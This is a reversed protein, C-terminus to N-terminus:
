KYVKMYEKASIKWSNDVSMNHKAFKIYKKQNAYLSIAKTIAHMYWFMNHEDFTIGIGQNKSHHHTDTFDVVTDRLGGTRAVIPLGGYRMMIMQNLGCPEFLSPMLLFDASAYFRRALPEDYGLTISINPYKDILKSFVGNYYKEGSGLIAVNIEFDKLLHLSQLILDVGKQSTFRGIFVFLPRNPESLNLEKCLKTKNQSKLEFTQKDYNKYIFEDTSPSFVDYSIGNIIGNLKYNNTILMNDLTHGFHNTQIENAYTPSVTTIVDSYFIGAKLFNVQDFYEFRDSKFCEKWDLELENMVSKHFIGQYAINHITFVIKQSLYYKTKALLAILATQWDNIHIANIKLDLRLMTEIVGYCFLGFRLHNDGFDGYSDHYLGERDCLIPNYLFLEYPNNANKYLDIQHRIGNLWIDFSFDCSIIEHKTRDVIYYLPMITYVKAIKRLEEPLSQAVDALGGSKAYPFMESSAFLINM